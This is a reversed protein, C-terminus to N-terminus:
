QPLSALFEGTGAIEGFLERSLEQLEKDSLIERYTLDNEFHRWRELVKMERASPARLRRWYYGLQLYKRPDFFKTWKRLMMRPTIRPHRYVEKDFSSGGGFPLVYEMSMEDHTIDLHSSIEKRYSEGDFWQNYSVFIQDPSRKERWQLATRALEKWSEAIWDPDKVGPLHNLIKLRSAFFNFPDRLILLDIQRESSGFYSEKRADFDSDFVSDVFSQSADRMRSEHDEYSYLLLDKPATQLEERNLHPSFGRSILDDCHSFPDQDGHSVCNLFCARKEHFLEFIWNLIAHNGSRMLGLARIELANRPPSTM